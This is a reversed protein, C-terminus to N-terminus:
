NIKVNTRDLRMDLPYKCCMVVWRSVKRSEQWGKLGECGIDEQGQEAEESAEGGMRRGGTVGWRGEGREESGKEESESGRCEWECMGVGSVQSSRVSRLV